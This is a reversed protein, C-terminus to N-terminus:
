RGRGKEQLFIPSRQALSFLYTHVVTEKGVHFNGGNRVWGRSRVSSEAKSLPTILRPHAAKSTEEKVAQGCAQHFLSASIMELLPLVGRQSTHPIQSFSGRARTVALRCWQPHEQSADNKTPGLSSSSHIKRLTNRRKKKKKVKKALGHPLTFDEWGPISGTGGANSTCLGLLWQVELSIGTYVNKCSYNCQGTIHIYQISLNHM